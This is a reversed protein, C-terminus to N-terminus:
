WTCINNHIKITSVNVCVCKNVNAQVCSAEFLPLLQKVGKFCKIHCKALIYVGDVDTVHIM